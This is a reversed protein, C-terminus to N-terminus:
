YVNSGSVIIISVLAGSVIGLNNIFHDIIDVLKIANVSSFLFISVAGTSFGIVSVAKKRSWNLKDQM